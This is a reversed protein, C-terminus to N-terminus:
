SRSRSPVRKAIPPWTTERSGSFRNDLSVLQPQDPITLEMAVIRVVRGDPLTTEYIDIVRASGGTVRARALARPVAIEDPVDIEFTAVWDETRPMQSESIRPMQILPRFSSPMSLGRWKMSPLSANTPCQELRRLSCQEGQPALSSDLLTDPSQLLLVHSLILPCKPLVGLLSQEVPDDIERGLRPALRDRVECLCIRPRHVWGLGM